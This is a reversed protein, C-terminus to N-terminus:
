ALQFLPAFAAWVSVVLAVSAVVLGMGVLATRRSRRLPLAMAAFSLAAMLGIASPLFWSSLAVEAYRPMKTGFERYAELVAVRTKLYVLGTLILVFIEGAFLAGLIAHRRM